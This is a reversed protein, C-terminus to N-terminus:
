ALYHVVDEVSAKDERGPELKEERRYGAQVVWGLYSSLTGGLGLM